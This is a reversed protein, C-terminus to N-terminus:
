LSRTESDMTFRDKSHEYRINAIFEYRQENSGEYNIRIRGSVIKNGEIVPRVDELQILTRTQVEAQPFMEASEAARDAQLSPGESSMEVSANVKIAPLSGFNKMVWVVVWLSSNRDSVREFKSVGMYPRNLAAGIELSKRSAEAQQTAANASKNAAEAANTAANAAKRTTRWLLVNVILSVVTSAAIVGTFIASVSLPDEWWEPRAIDAPTM